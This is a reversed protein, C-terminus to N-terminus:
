SAMKWRKLITESVELTSRCINQQNWVLSRITKWNGSLNDEV